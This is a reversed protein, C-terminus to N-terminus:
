RITPRFISTVTTSGNTASSSFNRVTTTTTTEELDGATPDSLDTSPNVVTVANNAAVMLQNMYPNMPMIGNAGTIEAPEFGLQWVRSANEQYNLAVSVRWAMEEQLMVTSSLSVAAAMGMGIVVASALVEVLTYGKPRLISKM